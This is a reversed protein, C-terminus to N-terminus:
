LSVRRVKPQYVAEQKQMDQIKLAIWDKHIKHYQHQVYHSTQPHMTLCAEITAGHDFLLYMAQPYDAYAIFPHCTSGKINDPSEVFPLIAELLAFNDKDVRSMCIDLVSREKSRMELTPFYNALISIADVMERKVLRQLPTHYQANHEFLEKRIQQSDKGQFYLKLQTEFNDATVNDCLTFLTSYRCKAESATKPASKPANLANIIEMARHQM